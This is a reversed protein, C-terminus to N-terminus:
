QKQAIVEIMTGGTNINLLKYLAKCFIQDFLVYKFHKTDFWRIESKSRKKNLLKKEKKKLFYKIIGALDVSYSWTNFELIRFGESILIDCLTKKNFYSLHEPPIIYDFNRKMIKSLTSSINPTAIYILGDKNLIKHCRKILLRPRSFHEIVQNLTIIDYRKTININLFDGKFIDFNFTKKLFDILTSSIDNGVVEWNYKAAEALFIGSGCGVDFLKTRRNKYKNIFQLSHKADRLIIDSKEFINNKFRLYLKKLKKQSLFPYVFVYSCEDCKYINWQKLLYILNIKKSHCLYCNLTKM